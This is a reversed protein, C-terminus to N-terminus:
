VIIQREPNGRGAAERHRPPPSAERERFPLLPRATVISPLFAQRYHSPLFPRTCCSAGGGLGEDNRAYRLLGTRGRLM